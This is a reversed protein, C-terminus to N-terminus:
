RVMGQEDNSGEEVLIRMLLGSQTLVGQWEGIGLFGVGKFPYRFVVTARTVMGDEDRDYPNDPMGAYRFHKRFMDTVKRVEQRANSLTALQPIFDSVTMDVHKCDKRFTFSQCNCFHGIVSYEAKKEMDGSSSLAVKMVTKIKGSDRILYHCEQNEDPM